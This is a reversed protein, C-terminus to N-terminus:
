VFALLASARSLRRRCLAHQWAAGAAAAQQPGSIWQIFLAQILSYSVLWTREKEVGKSGMVGGAGLKGRVYICVYVCVCSWRDKENHKIELSDSSPFFRRGVHESIVQWITMCFCILFLIVTYKEPNIKETITLHDKMDQFVIVFFYAPVEKAATSVTFSKWHLFMKSSSNAIVAESAPLESPNHCLLAICCKSCLDLHALAHTNTQIQEIIFLIYQEYKIYKEAVCRFTNVFFVM